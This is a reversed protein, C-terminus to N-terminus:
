GKDPGTEFVPRYVRGKSPRKDADAHDPYETIIPLGSVVRELHEVRAQTAELDARLAITPDPPLLMAAAWTALGAILVGIAYPLWVKM